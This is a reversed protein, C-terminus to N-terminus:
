PIFTSVMGHFMGARTIDANMGFIFLSEIWIRLPAIFGFHCSLFLCACARIRSMIEQDGVHKVLLALLM